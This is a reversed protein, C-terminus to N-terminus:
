STDIPSCDASAHVHVQDKKASAELCIETWMLWCSVPMQVVVLPLLNNAAKEGM